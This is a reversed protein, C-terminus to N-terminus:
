YLGTGPPLSFTLPVHRVRPALVRRSTHFLKGKKKQTTKYNRNQRAFENTVRSPTCPRRKVSTSDDTLRSGRTGRFTNRQNKEETLPVTLTKSSDESKSGRELVHVYTHRGKTPSGSRRWPGRDRGVGTLDRDTWFPGSPRPPTSVLSDSDPKM